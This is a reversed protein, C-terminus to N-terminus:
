MIAKIELLINLFCSITSLVVNWFSVALMTYTYACQMNLVIHENTWELFIAQADITNWYSYELIQNIDSVFCILVTGECLRHELPSILSYVCLFYILLIIIPLVLTIFYIFFILRLSKSFGPLTTSPDRFFHYKLWVRLSLFIVIICLIVPLVNGLPPIILAFFCFYSAPM